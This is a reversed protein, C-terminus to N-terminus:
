TEKSTSRWIAESPTVMSKATSTMQLLLSLFAKSDHLSRSHGGCGKIETATDRTEATSLPQLGVAHTSKPQNEEGRILTALAM